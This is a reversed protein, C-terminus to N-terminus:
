AARERKMGGLGSWDRFRDLGEVACRNIVVQVVVGRASRDQDDGAEPSKAAVGRHFREGRLDVRQAIARRDDVGAAVAVAASHVAEIQVFM